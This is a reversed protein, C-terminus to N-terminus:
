SDSEDEGDDPENDESEDGEDDKDEGDDDDAEETEQEGDDSSQTSVANNSASTAQITPTNTPSPTVTETNTETPSATVTPTETLTATASVTPSLTLTVTATDTITPSTTVTPTESLTVTAIPTIDTDQTIEPTNSPTASLEGAFEDQRPLLIFFGVLVLLLSAVLMVAAGQPLVFIPKRFETEELLDNIYVDLRSRMSALEAYDARARSTAQGLELLIELDDAVDAHARLCDEITQGYALRDLSDNLAEILRQDSM